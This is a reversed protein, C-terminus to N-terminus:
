RLCDESHPPCAGDNETAMLYELIEQVGAPGVKGGIMGNFRACDCPAGLCCPEIWEGTIEDILSIEFSQAHSLPFLKRKMRNVTEVDAGLVLERVHPTWHPYSMITGDLDYFSSHMDFGAQVSLTVSLKPFHFPHFITSESNVYRLQQVFAGGSFRIVPFPFFSSPMALGSNGFFHM